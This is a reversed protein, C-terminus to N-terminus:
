KSFLLTIDRVCGRNEDDDQYERWPLTVTKYTQIDLSDTQQIAEEDVVENKLEKNHDEHLMMEESGMNIVGFRTDMQTSENSTFHTRQVPLVNVSWNFIDQGIILDVKAASGSAIEKVLMMEMQHCIHEQPKVAEMRVQVSQTCVRIPQSISERVLVPWFSKHTLKLERAVKETILSCTSSSSILARVTLRKRENEKDLGPLRSGNSLIVKIIPRLKKRKRTKKQSSSNKSPLPITSKNKVSSNNSLFLTAKEIDKVPTQMISKIYEFLKLTIRKRKNVKLPENEKSVYKTAKKEIMEDIRQGLRDSDIFYVFFFVFMQELFPTMQKFYEHVTKWKTCGTRCLKFLM